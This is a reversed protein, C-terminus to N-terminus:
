RPNSKIYRQLAAYLPHNALDVRATDMSDLVVTEITVQVAKIYGAHPKGTKPDKTEFAICYVNTPEM